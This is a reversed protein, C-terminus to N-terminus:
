GQGTMGPMWCWGGAFFASTVPSMPPYSPMYEEQLDALQNNFVILEPFGLVKGAFEGGGSQKWTSVISM